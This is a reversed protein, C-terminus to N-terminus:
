SEPIQPASAECAGFSSGLGFFKDHKGLDAVSIFLSDAKSNIGSPQVDGATRPGRIRRQVRRGKIMLSENIEINRVTMEEVNKKNLGPAKEVVARPRKKITEAVTRILCVLNLVRDVVIVDVRTPANAYIVFNNQSDAIIM